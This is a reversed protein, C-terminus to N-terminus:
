IALNDILRARGLWAAAFLRNGDLGDPLGLDTARRIACYDPRFGHRSLTAMAAMELGVRQHDSAENADRWAAATQQLTAYLLPAIAREAADLYRNRSSLALGDAERVTPVGRIAIPFDLDAVLRRIVLLQQWDKEGFLAVDPQVLNFLKAVVLAVGAFHTPRSAGCLEGTLAADVTVRTLHGPPYMLAVTPTFVADAGREQLLACDDALTRPYNALDEQPGFQAPNVFISAIVRTHAPGATRAATILAGHGAHLNGMTPAFAIPAGERRWDAVQQRLDAVTDIVRM